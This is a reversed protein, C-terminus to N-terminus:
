ENGVGMQEYVALQVQGNPGCHFEVRGRMMGNVRAAYVVLLLAMTAARGVLRHKAVGDTLVVTAM